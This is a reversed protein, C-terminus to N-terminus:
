QKRNKLALSVAETASHVQLKTYISKLHNKVTNISINLKASIMKYSNGEILSNLVKSEALTLSDNPITSTIDIRLDPTRFLELVRRAIYPSMVSGGQMVDSLLSEIQSTATNKLLYGDAKGQVIANFIKEDDDFHTLIVIKIDDYKQKVKSMGAIGSMGALEIDMLILQPHMVQVHDLVNDCSAFSAKLEFEHLSRIVSCLSDRYAADDEYVLIKYPMKM